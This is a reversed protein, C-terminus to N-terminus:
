VVVGIQSYLERQRIGDWPKVTKKNKILVKDNKRMKYKQKEEDSLLMLNIYSHENLYRRLIYMSNEM